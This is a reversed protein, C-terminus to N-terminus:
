KVMTKALSSLLAVMEPNALVKMLTEAYVGDPVTIMKEMGEETMQPNLNKKGYFAEEFLTAGRRRSEELPNDINGNGSKDPGDFWEDFSKKSIWYKGKCRGWKFEKKKLLNYITPRSVMLIEQLEKVSYCKKENV